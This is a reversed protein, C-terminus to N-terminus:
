LIAGTLAIGFIAGTIAGGILSIIILINNKSKHSAWYDGHIIWGALWATPGLVGVIAMLYIWRWPWERIDFGNDKGFWFHFGSTGLAYWTLTIAM